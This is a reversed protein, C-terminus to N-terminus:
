QTGGEPFINENIYFLKASVQEGEVIDYLAVSTVLGQADRVSWQLLDYTNADFVLTLQGPIKTDKDEMFISVTEPGIDVALINAEERLDINDKLMMGLPTLRLPYQDTTKAKRDEVAVRRGDSVILMPHPLDYEFRMKGPRQIYVRGESRSGDPGTQVFTGHMTRISNLKRQISTIAAERDQPTAEPTTESREPASPMPATAQVPQPQPAQGATQADATGATVAIGAAFGLLAATIRRVTM